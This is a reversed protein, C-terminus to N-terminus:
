GRWLSFLTANQLHLSHPISDIAPNIPLYNFFNHNSLPWKFSDCDFLLPDSCFQEVNMQFQPLNNQDLYSVVTLLNSSSAPINLRYIPSQSRLITFMSNILKDDISILNYETNIRHIIPLGRATSSKTLPILPFRIHTLFPPPWHLLMSCVCTRNQYRRISDIGGILLM